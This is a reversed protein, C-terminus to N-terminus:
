LLGESGGVGVNCSPLTDGKRSLVTIMIVRICFLVCVLIPVVNAENM